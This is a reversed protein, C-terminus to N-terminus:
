SAKRNTKQPTAAKAKAAEKKLKDLQNQLATKEQRLKNTEKKAEALLNKNEVIDQTLKKVSHELQSLKVKSGNDGGSLTKQPRMLEQLKTELLGMKTSAEKLQTELIQNQAMMRKLESDNPAPAAESVQSSPKENELTMKKILIELQSKEQRLSQLEKNDHQSKAHWKDANKKALDLQNKLQNNLMQLKRAEEKSDDGNSANMKSALSSIKVKYVDLQKLLNANQKELLRISKEQNQALGTALSHSLQDNKQRLNILESEKREILKAYSEKIKELMLDKAKIVRQSKELEQNYLNEKQISEIHLKRTKLEEAKIDAMFKSERELLAALKKLEAQNLEKQEKLKEAFHKRLAEDSDIKAVVKDETVAELAKKQIDLQKDRANKLSQYELNLSKLQARLRDNEQAMKKVLLDSTNPQAPASLQVPKGAAPAEKQKEMLGLKIIEPLRQNQFDDIDKNDLEEAAKNLNKAFDFLGSKILSPIKDGLSRVRLNSEKTTDDVKAAIRYAVKDIDLKDGFIRIVSKEEEFKEKVVTILEDLGLEGKIIRIEDETSEVPEPVITKEEQIAETVNPITTEEIPKDPTGPVITITEEEAPAGHVITVTKEEEPDGSVITQTPHSEEAAGSVVTVVEEEDKKGSVKAVKTQEPKSSFFLRETMDPIPKSEVLSSTAGENEYKHLVLGSDLGTFMLGRNEFKIRTDKTWLATIIVKNVSPMYSFDFFDSSQVATNLFYEEAKKTLVSSLSTTVDLIELHESFFHMQVAFVDEYAGYTVEFPLGVKKQKKLGAVYMLLHDFYTKISLAEIGSEFAQHIMRDLYEGTNFPNTINFTGLEQFSPYNDGLTIGGYGQFYKDMIFPGLQSKFWVDDLVLNGNNITFNQLDEVQSLSIIHRDKLTLEYTDNILNYDCIDKTIIHTWDATASSVLPDIVLINRSVFYEKLEPSLAGTLNLIALPRDMRNM